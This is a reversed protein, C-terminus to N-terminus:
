EGKRFPLTVTLIRDTPNMKLTFDSFGNLNLLDEIDASLISGLGLKIYHITLTTTLAQPDHSTQRGEIGYATVIKEIEAEMEWTTKGAM